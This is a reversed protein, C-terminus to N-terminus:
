LKKVARSNRSARGGKRGPVCGICIKSIDSATMAHADPRRVGFSRETVRPIHSCYFSSVPAEEEETVPQNNEADATAESTGGSPNTTQPTLYPAPPPILTSPGAEVNRRENPRAHHTGYPQFQRPMLGTRAPGTSPQHPTQVNQISTGILKHLSSRARVSVMYFM